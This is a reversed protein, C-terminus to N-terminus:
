QVIHLQIEPMPYHKANGTVLVLKHIVATAAILADIPTLTIGQTRYNHIYTGALKAIELTPPLCILAGIIADTRAKEHSRMGAYIETITLSSCALLQAKEVELQVGALGDVLEVADQKGRLYDILVDSDLLYSRQPQSNPAM